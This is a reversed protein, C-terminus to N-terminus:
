RMRCKKVESYRAIFDEIIELCETVSEGPSLGEGRDNNTKIIFMEYLDDADFRTGRIERIWATIWQEANM